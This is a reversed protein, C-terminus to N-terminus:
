SARNLIKVLEEKEILDILRAEVFQKASDSFEGATLCFGRGAKLDKLRSHFDRLLLEGVSGSTRIFRFLIVDVWKSTEVEALIDAYESKNVSIDTIKVRSQPIFSSTVKRCLAVFESPPAVLFVQLNKNSHLERNRALQQPVDKYGPSTQNIEELLPLAKGIQQQKVYAAALRYKLELAIDAPINEHRLGLEFDTQAREFHRNKLYISGSFLAARPGFAPDARLHSFIRVAQDNQGLEFYAQGLVFLSEKDDPQQDLVRRLIAISDNYKKLKYLTQGLYRQVPIQEPQQEHAARLLGAAKEYNRRRFELYGLNFNLEFTDPKLTRAVVLSKYAEELQQLQLAALGYRLTVYAEDVEQNTASLNVLVGYTKMAKDWEKDEYYIDALTRLAVNDKPNQALAKNAEKLQTARDKRSDTRKKRPDRNRFLLSVITMLFIVGIVLPILVITYQSGMFANDTLSQPTDLISLKGILYYAQNKNSSFEHRVRYDPDFYGVTGKEWDKFARKVALLPENEGGHPFIM